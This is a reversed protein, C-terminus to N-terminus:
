VVGVALFYDVGRVLVSGVQARGQMECMGTVFGAHNTGNHSFESSEIISLPSGSLGTRECVTGVSVCPHETKM